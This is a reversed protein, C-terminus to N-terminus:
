SNSKFDYLDKRDPKLRGVEVLHKTYKNIIEKGKGQEWIKWGGEYWILFDYITQEIEKKDM